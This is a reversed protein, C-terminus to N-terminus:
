YPEEGTGRWFVDEDGRAFRAVDFLMSHGCLPCGVVLMFLVTGDAFDGKEDPRVVEGVPLIAPMDFTDLSSSHCVPCAALGLQRLQPPVESLFQRTFRM